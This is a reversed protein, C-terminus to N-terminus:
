LYKREMERYEPLGVFATYDKFGTLRHTEGPLIGLPAQRLAHFFDALPVGRSMGTIERREQFTM